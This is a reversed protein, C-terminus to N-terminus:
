LMGMWRGSFKINVSWECTECPKGIWWRLVPSYARRISGLSKGSNVNWLAYISEGGNNKNSLLVNPNDDLFETM